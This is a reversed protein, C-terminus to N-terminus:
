QKRLGGRPRKKKIRRNLKKKEQTKRKRKM